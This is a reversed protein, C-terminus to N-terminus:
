RVMSSSVQPPLDSSLFSVTFSIEDGEDIEIKFRPDDQSCYNWESIEECELGDTSVFKGEALKGQEFDGQYYGGKVFLTGEGHFMGDLFNGVYRGTAHSPRLHTATVLNRNMLETAKLDELLWTERTSSSLSPLCNDPFAQSSSVKCIEGNM